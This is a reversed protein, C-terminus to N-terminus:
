KKPYDFFWLEKKAKKFDKWSSTDAKVAFIGCTPMNDIRTDTLLNAFATIGPNHSFLAATKISDDLEHIVSYFASPMAHYLQGYSQIASEPLGYAQAFFTATSLARNATSSVFADISVGKKLLRAAMDPADRIGRDNLPRLFDTQGTIAWSSKAHRIILLQKM